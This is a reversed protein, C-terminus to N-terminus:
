EAIKFNKVTFKIIANFISILDLGGKRGELEEQRRRQKDLEIGERRSKRKNTKKLCQTWEISDTHAHTYSWPISFLYGKLLNM